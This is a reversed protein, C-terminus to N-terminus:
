HLHVYPVSTRCRPGWAGAAGAAEGAPAARCWRAGWVLGCVFVGCLIPVRMLVAATAHHRILNGCDCGRSGRFHLLLVGQRILVSQPLLVSRTSPPPPPPPPPPSFPLCCFQPAFLDFGHRLNLSVGVSAIDKVEMGTETDFIKLVQARMYLCTPALTTHSLNLTRVFPSGWFEICAQRFCFRTGKRLDAVVVEVVEVLHV